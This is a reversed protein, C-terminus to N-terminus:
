IRLSLRMIKNRSSLLIISNHFFIFLDYPSFGGKGYFAISLNAPFVLHAGM